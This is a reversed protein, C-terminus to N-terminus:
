AHNEGEGRTLRRFTDELSVRERHMDLLVLENSVAASFISERPDNAGSARLTFGYTNTGEGDSPDVARVGPLDSLINSVKGIDVSADNRGKVVLRIVAGTDGTTLADTQDDAVIKGENIIIIRDCTAQVEPLIHTSLLVTKEKGLDKILRRIEVIQNPDLGSTPEDLILLDPDHVMAQALGVRQRFGKSLQGIDKGLVDMLGCQEGINKLRKSAEGRPVGRLDAVLHLFDAVMMDDYLPASEPLYGLKAQAVLPSESVDVGGVFVKGATPRLFGTIMKMTTTKGAGNPGLFGVVEGGSVKFSVDNVACTADYDKRLGRTEVIPQKSAEVM